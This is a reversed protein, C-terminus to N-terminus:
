LPYNVLILLQFWITKWRLNKDPTAKLLRVGMTFEYTKNMRYSIFNIEQYKQLTSDDSSHALLRSAFGWPSNEYLAFLREIVVITKSLLRGGKMSASPPSLLSIIDGRESEQSGQCNFLPSLLKLTRYTIISVLNNEM